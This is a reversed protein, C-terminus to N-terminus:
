ITLFVVSALNDTGSSCVFDCVLCLYRIFWPRKCYKVNMRDLINACMSPQRIGALFTDFNGWVQCTLAKAAQQEVEAKKKDEGAKQILKSDNTVKAYNLDKDAQLIKATAESYRKEATMELESDSLKWTLVMLTYLFFYNVKGVSGVQRIPLSGLQLKIM